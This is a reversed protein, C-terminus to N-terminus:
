RIIRYHSLYFKSLALHSQDVILIEIPQRLPTPASVFNSASFPICSSPFRSSPLRPMDEHMACDQPQFNPITERCIM